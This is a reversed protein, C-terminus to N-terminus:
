QVAVTIQKPKAAEHKPLVIALLGDQYRAEIRESDVDVPLDISRVFKGAARENRHFAEANVNQPAIKEGAITLSNGQISVTLAEPNMGPALAQIYVNDKDESVNMLPYARASYGPLFAIPSVGDTGSAANAFARDIERRLAEMERLPHFTRM